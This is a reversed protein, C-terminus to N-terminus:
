KILSKEKTLIFKRNILPRVKNNINIEINKAESKAWESDSFKQKLEKNIKKAEDRLGIKNYIEFLRFYAEPVQKTYRYRSIVENFSIVAGVYNRVRIQYRGVSMKAGALHEDIFSLKSKADESYNSDPFRAILERFIFSAQQTNDQARDIAPIQNYYTLGKMYLMYPVYESSPNLRVFDEVNSAVKAYEERKYRAYVAMTQAKVAWRSFPYEDDIKEFETAAESYDKKKLLKAAELYATEANTKENEKKSCSFLAVFILPLFIIKKM